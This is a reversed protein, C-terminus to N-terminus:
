GCGGADLRLRASARKGLWTGGLIGGAAALAALRGEGLQVLVVGPCAGSLAV